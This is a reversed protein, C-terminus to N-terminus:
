AFPSWLFYFRILLLLGFGSYVFLNWIRFKEAAVGALKRELPPFVLGLLFVGSVAGLLSGVYIDAFFHVGLTVRTFCFLISTLAVAVQFIGNWKRAFFAFIIGGAFFSTAHGSPFSHHRPPNSPLFVAEPHGALLVTPRDWGPFLVSKCFIVLIGSGLVVVIAALPLAKENAWMILFILSILVVADAFHTFFLALQDLLPFHFRNFLLFSEEYGYVWLLAGGIIWAVLMTIFFFRLEWFTNRFNAIM